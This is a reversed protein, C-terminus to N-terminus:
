TARERARQWEAMVKSESTLGGTHAGSTSARCESQWLGEKQAPRGNAAKHNDAWADMEVRDFAIGQRAIPIETLYPRAERDFTFTSMGLYQAAEARRYFRNLM